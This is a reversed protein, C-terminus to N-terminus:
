AHLPGERPLVFELPQQQAKLEFLLSVVTHFQHGVCQDIQPMEATGSVRLWSLSVISGQLDLGVARAIRTVEPLAQRLLPAENRNGPASIFPAIVNCNRDCFAVVKDGKLKKHGNFGINDGGKKVATTTGDGHIVTIDLLADQHLQMVTGAFIADMCGDAEWRRFASYIGGRRKSHTTM